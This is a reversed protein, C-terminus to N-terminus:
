DDTEDDDHDCSAALSVISGPATTGQLASFGDGTGVFVRGGSIAPGSTHAGIDVQALGEGDSARVAYLSGNIAAFYVVGNAVAVGSLTAGFDPVHFRWLEQSTDGSFAVVDGYYLYDATNAYVVGNAVASDAFMGGLGLGAVQFQREALAEGTAANLVHFFGSKQGAGVVKTGDALRYIQPSDGIDYDPHPPFPPFAINWSDNAYRQNAWVIAGTRPDLAIISDSLGTSPDTYNNGTTVFLLDLKPDYTPTSWVPVGSSGAASEADSILSRQWVVEGNKPDILAVSGRFSCCPYGPYAAPAFWENSSFGIAVYKGVPTASGYVAAWPHENPRVQWDIAGTKKNLGYVFGALDGIIVHKGQVLASASVPGNLQTQWRLAGSKQKLAYFKGTLDGAFVRGGTVAPTGTVAGPTPYTWEPALNSANQPGLHHEESAYRSGAADHNYMPWDARAESAVGLGTLLTAGALFKVFISSSNM